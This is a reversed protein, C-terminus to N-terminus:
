EAYERIENKAWQVLDITLFLSAENYLKDIVKQADSPTLAEDRVARTVIGLTGHPRIGQREAVTRAQLDDTLPLPIAEQKCLQIATAEGLDIGHRSTLHKARDKAEAHLQRIALDAEAVLAQGVEAAVHQTTLPNSITSLLNLRDIQNLHILPGADLVATEIAMYVGDSTKNSPKKSDNQKSNEFDNESPTASSNQGTQTGDKRL